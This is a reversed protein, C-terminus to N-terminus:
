RTAATIMSALNVLESLSLPGVLTLRHGQAEWVVLRLAGVVVTRGVPGIAPVPDGRGPPGLRRAPAVFLALSRVGDSYHLHAAMVPGDRIPAGGQLVFGESLRQPARISFGVNTELVPLSLLPGARATQSVMRAGAPLRARFLGDPVNLAFSIRTFYATAVLGEDPDREETRLAVGTTRDIWMRRERRGDRPWLSLVATQRGIVEETGLVRVRYRDLPLDMAADAPAAMSPGLFVMHLRPEYHWAQIGDDIVLRGAVGEPSLFDLRTKAPRKHAENVTVTEMLDGRLVSLIKTGEYDVIQPALAAHRIVNAVPVGELLAEDSGQSTALPVAALWLAIGLMAIRTAMTIRTM